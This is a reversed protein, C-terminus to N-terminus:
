RVEQTKQAQKAGSFNCDIQLFIVTLLSTLLLSYARVCKCVPNHQLLKTLSLKLLFIGAPKSMTTHGSGQYNGIVLYPSINPFQLVSILMRIVVTSHLLRSDDKM